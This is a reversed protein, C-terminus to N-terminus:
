QIIKYAYFGRRMRTKIQHVDFDRGIKKSIEIYNSSNVYIYDVMHSERMSKLRMLINGRNSCTLCEAIEFSFVWPNKSKILFIEIEQQGM